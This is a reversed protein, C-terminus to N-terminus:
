VVLSPFPVHTMMKSYNLCTAEHVPRHKDVSVSLELCVCLGLGASGLCGNKSVAFM